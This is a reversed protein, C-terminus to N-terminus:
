RAKVEMAAIARGLVWFAIRWGSGWLVATVIIVSWGTGVGFGEEPSCRTRTCVAAKVLPSSRQVLFKGKRWSEVTSGLIRTGQLSTAPVM